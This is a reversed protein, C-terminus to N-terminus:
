VNKRTKGYIMWLVGRTPPDMIEVSTTPRVASVLVVEQKTVHTILTLEQFRVIHAQSVLCEKSRSPASAPVKAPPGPKKPQYGTAVPLALPRDKWPQTLVSQAHPSGSLLKLLFLPELQLWKASKPEWKHASTDLQVHNVRAVELYMQIIGEAVYNALREKVRRKIIIPALKVHFVIQRM